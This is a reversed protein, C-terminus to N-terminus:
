ADTEAEPKKDLKMSFVRTVNPEEMTTGYIYDAVEMTKYNHTIIIFQTESKITKMLDLFRVLNPEDLAADIEDLICFPTPKFRFLAFLFALSTLSKEGGSLLGMNALKKGPPQAIVEVGSELPNAEDILRVEATGGKFLTIFLDQFNKNIETLAALFRDRSEGNIQSIAEKTQSISTRLDDRQAILFDHRQKQEAYEEEAMLNVTKYKAMDERANELDAEVEAATPEPIGPEREPLPESRIEHLNKKLETWCAEELNVMDREIEAKRVEWAMREDKLREHEMRRGSLSGEATELDKRATSLRTEGEALSKELEEQRTQFGTIKGASDAMATKIRGAEELSSRVGAQLEDIKIQSAEKRRALALCLDELSKIKAELVHVEGKATALGTSDANQKDQHVALEREREEGEAQLANKEELLREVLAAHTKMKEGLAAKDMALIELEHAFLAIDEKLKTREAEALSCDKDIQILDKELGALRGAAEEIRRELERRDNEREELEGAVPAIEAERISLTRGLDRIEQHLGFLGERRPGLSLLGAASLVDGGRTIFNAGPRELWLRVATRVDEVIVADPLAPLGGPLRSGPRLRSKLTGLVGPQDRWEGGDPDGATGGLLLYRGKLTRGDLGRLLDEPAIIAARSEDKWFVDVLAADAAETEVLEALLGLAGDVSSTEDSAREKVAIKELAQLHHIDADRLARLEQLRHELGAVTEATEALRGRLATWEGRVAGSEELSAARRSELGRLDESKAEVLARAEEKRTKLKEEQRTLMELEKEVKAADNRAATWEALKQLHDSRLRDSQELLPSIRATTEALTREFSVIAEKKVVLAATLAQIEERSRAGEEELGLLERLREDADAAAKRRSEEIFESRKADREREAELRAIQSRITYLNERGGTFAQELEWVNKRKQNVAGEEDALRAQQERERISSEEYRALIDAQGAALQASKLRFHLVNLERVRERLRRYREAAGAQRALSNKAKSVEAIIDELRVLNRESDELKNEAQRKKDKFFATGAAEEILARKEVPKSTVFTGIAGQEIVFYRNESITRKWLEDQIDKLRVIKGDLRYESEGTRFVRHNVTIEDESNQLVLSVDAMGMPPRLATGAFVADDIKEGRVTRVRQGGLVWQIAEVINSKGTGNPGIIITIGPNFLIKTRDPFTKFGQLELRKIYM